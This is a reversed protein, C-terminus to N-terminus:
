DPGLATSVRKAEFYVNCASFIITNKSELLVEDGPIEITNGTIAAPPHHILIQTAKSAKIGLQRFAVQSSNSGQGSNDDYFQEASVVTSEAVPHETVVNKWRFLAKSYEIETGLLTKAEASGWCSITTTPIERTVVWKGWLQQPIMHAPTTVAPNTQIASTCGPMPIMSGSSKVLNKALYCGIETIPTPKPNRRFVYQFSGNQVGELMWWAGDLVYYKRSNEDPQPETSQTAWFGAKDVLELLKDVDV